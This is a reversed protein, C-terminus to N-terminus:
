HRAPSGCRRTWGRAARTTTASWSSPPRAAPRAPLVAPPHAPRLDAALGPGGGGDGPRPLRRQPQQRRPPPGQGLDSRVGGPVHRVTGHPGSRCRRVAAGGDTCRRGGQGAARGAAGPFSRAAHDPGALTRRAGRAADARLRLGAGCRRCREGRGPAGALAGLVRERLQQERERRAPGDAGRRVPCGSRLHLRRLRLQGFAQEVDALAVGSDQFAAHIARQAMDEYREGASPKSFPVMGVGAVRVDASM